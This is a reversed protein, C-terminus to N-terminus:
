DDWDAGYLRRLRYDVMFDGGYDSNEIREIAARQRAEQEKRAQEEERQRIAEERRKNAEEISRRENSCSRM